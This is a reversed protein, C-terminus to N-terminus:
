QLPWPCAVHVFRRLRPSPVSPHGPPPCPAHGRRGGSMRLSRPTTAAHISSLSARPPRPARGRRGGAIRLSPPTANANITGAVGEPPPHACGRRGGIRSAFSITKAAHISCPHAPPPSPAQGRRGGSMRPSSDDCGCPHFSSPASAAVPCAVHVLRRMPTIAPRRGPLPRHACGRRASVRLSASPLIFPQIWPPPIPSIRSTFRLIRPAGRLIWTLAFDATETADSQIGDDANNLM